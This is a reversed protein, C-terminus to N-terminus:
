VITNALVNERKIFYFSKFVFGPFEGNVINFACDQGTFKCGVFNIRRLSGGKVAYVPVPYFNIMGIGGPIVPDQLKKILSNILDFGVRRPNVTFIVYSIGAATMGKRLPQELM